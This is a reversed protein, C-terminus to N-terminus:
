NPNVGGAAPQGRLHSWLSLDWSQRFSATTRLPHSMATPELTAHIMPMSEPKRGRGGAGKPCSSDTPRWVIHMSKPKRGRGGAGRLLCAPSAGYRCERCALTDHSWPPGPKPNRCPALTSSIPSRQMSLPGEFGSHSGHMLNRGCTNEM